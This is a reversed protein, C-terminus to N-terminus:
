QNRTVIFRQGAEEGEFYVLKGPICSILSGMGFGIIKNLAKELDLLQGDIDSNESMIYCNSPSGAKLLLSLIDSTTQESPKLKKIYRPDFDINHAFRNRLKKRGKKTQLLFKIREKKSHTILREILLEEHQQPSASTM